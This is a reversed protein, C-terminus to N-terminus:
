KAGGFESLKGKRLFDEIQKSTVKIKLMRDVWAFSIGKHKAKYKDEVQKNFGKSALAVENASAKTKLSRNIASLGVKKTQVASSHIWGEISRSTRVKVWGNQSSIKEVSEGAKLLVITSAYFKPEKRLNTSQVSIVLTEAIAVTVGILAAAILIILRFKEKM